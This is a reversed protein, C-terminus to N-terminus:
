IRFLIVDDYWYPIKWKFMLSLYSFTHCWWVLLPIEMQLYQTLVSFYSTMTDTLSKGNSPLAHICFLIVDDHWYPIKWKFVHRSIKWKLVFNSCPFGHRQWILLPNEMQLYPAFVSFYSTMTDTLSIGNSPMAHSKGYSCLTQVHFVMTNDYWYPTKWKFTLRSHLFSHRWWTLLPNEMQICLVLCLLIQRCEILLLFELQVPLQLHPMIHRWSSTM